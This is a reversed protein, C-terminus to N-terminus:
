SECRLVIAMSEERLFKQQKAIFAEIKRQFEESSMEPGSYPFDAPKEGSKEVKPCVDTKSRRLERKKETSMNESRSRRYAKRMSTDTNTCAHTNETYVVSKDECATEKEEEPPPTEKRTKHRNESNKLFEDYLDVSSNGAPNQGSKLFLTVVIANGVLFVFLPSVLIVSLHRVFDGSIKVAIPLRASFWSIFVFAVCVEVIRFVIAIKRIRRYRKMANAKEAKVTDIEFLDM